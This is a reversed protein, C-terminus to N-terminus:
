PKPGLFKTLNFPRYGDVYPTGDEACTPRGDIADHYMTLWEGADNQYLHFQTTDKPTNVADSVTAELQQAEM